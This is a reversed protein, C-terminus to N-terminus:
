AAQGPLHRSFLLDAYGSDPLEEPPNRADFPELKGRQTVRFAHYERDAFFRTLEAPEAGFQRLAAPCYEVVVVANPNSELTQAMGHCVRLEYGQVDVKIFAIPSIDRTRVVDDITTIEVQELRDEGEQTTSGDSVRHDAPHYENIALTVQGVSDGVASRIATIRSDLGVDAITDELRRFNESGPEFAWVRFQPEIAGAFVSATYGINAGVDIAHGARFFEPHQLTLGHFPDEVRRKYAFYARNFLRQTPRYSFLGLRTAQRYMWLGVQQAERLM